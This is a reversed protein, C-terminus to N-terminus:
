GAGSTSRSSSELFSRGTPKVPEWTPQRSCTIFSVRHNLFVSARWRNKQYRSSVESTKILFTHPKKTGESRIWSLWSIVRDGRDSVPPGCVSTSAAASSSALLSRCTGRPARLSGPSRTRATCRSRRIAAISCRRRRARSGRFWRAPRSRVRRRRAGSRRRASRWCLRSNGRRRRRWRRAAARGSRPPPPALHRRRARGGASRAPLAGASRRRRVRRRGCASRRPGRRWRRVRDQAADGQEVVEGGADVGLDALQEGVRGGVRRRGGGADDAADFRQEVGAEVLALM